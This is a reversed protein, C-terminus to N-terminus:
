DVGDGYLGSVYFRGFWGFGGGGCGEARYVDGGDEGACGEERGGEESEM